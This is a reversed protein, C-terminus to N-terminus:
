CAANSQIWTRSTWVGELDLMFLINKDMLAWIQGRAWSVVCQIISLMQVHTFNNFKTAHLVANICAALLDGRINCISWSSYSRQNRQVHEIQVQNTDQRCVTATMALFPM